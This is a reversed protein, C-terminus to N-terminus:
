FVLTNMSRSHTLHLWIWPRDFNGAAYRTLTNATRSWTSERPSGRSKTWADWGEEGGGAGVGHHGRGLRFNLKLGTSTRISKSRIKAATRVRLPVLPRSDKSLVAMSLFFATYVELRQWIEGSILWIGKRIVTKNKKSVKKCFTKRRKIRPIQCNWLFINGM